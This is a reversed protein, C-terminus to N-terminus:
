VIEEKYRDSTKQPTLTPFPIVKTNTNGKQSVPFPHNHNTLNTDSMFCFSFLALM